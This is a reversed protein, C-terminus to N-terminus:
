SKGEVFPKQKTRSIAREIEDLCHSCCDIRGCVCRIHPGIHSCKLQLHSGHIM